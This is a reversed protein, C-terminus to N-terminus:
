DPFSAIRRAQAQAQLALECALFCHAQPMATETRDRIDALFRPGFPLAVDDCPIRRTGANDVLFLHNAGPQGAIDCNKRIEIYGATGLITLRTDGWTPLGAPTFWDVRIYGLGRDGRLTVDGFDEFHPYEPHALNGVQAAVIEANTSGTFFLFQDIQHSAIDNLVGGFRDREFFWAPRRYNALRHPGLGITQLPRGIAGAQVLEGARVTAANGFREGFYVAHIRGTEAQVRRAEALQGPTTFGPKDSLYDKGHRMAAVGIPGREDPIAAGAILQIGPDELLEEASGAARAQPFRAVFRALLDPEPAFAGALEAGADLLMATMDYIHDHNLGIVGFRIPPQGTTGM